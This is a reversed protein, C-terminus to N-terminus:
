GGIFDFSKIQISNKGHCVFYLPYVGDPFNVNGGIRCWKDELNDPISIRGISKGKKKM